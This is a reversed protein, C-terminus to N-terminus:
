QDINMSKWGIMDAVIFAKIKGLTGDASWKAAIHRVGYLPRHRGDRDNGIAEEGDDFLLWM